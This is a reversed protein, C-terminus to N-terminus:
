IKFCFTNSHKDYADTCVTAEKQPNITIEKTGNLDHIGTNLRTRM